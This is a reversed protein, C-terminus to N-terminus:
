CSWNENIVTKSPEFSLHDKALFQSHLARWKNYSIQKKTKLPFADFYDFCLSVNRAGNLQYYYHDPTHHPLVTGGKFIDRFMNLIPLNMIFNQSIMFRIRYAISNELLSVTFCGEADAFGCFWYNNISPLATFVKLLIPLLIIRGTGVWNNFTKLADVFQLQKFPLVINGNFLHMMLSVEEKSQMILRSTNPGGSTISGVGLTEHIFHLISVDDNSQTFVVHILEGRSVNTFGGDGEFFGIIWQLNQANPLSRNSGHFYSYASYFDSFDFVNIIGGSNILSVPLVSNLYILGEPIILTNSLGESSLALPFVFEPLSCYALHEIFNGHTNIQFISDWLLNLFFALLLGLYPLFNILTNTINESFTFFSILDSYLIFIWFKFHYFL